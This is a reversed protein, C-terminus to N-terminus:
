VLLTNVFVKKRKKKPNKHMMPVANATIAHAPEYVGAVTSLVAVGCYTLHM